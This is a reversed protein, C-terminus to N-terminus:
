ITDHMGCEMRCDVPIRVDLYRDGGENFISDMLGNM